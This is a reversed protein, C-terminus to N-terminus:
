KRWLRDWWLLVHLWRVGWWSLPADEREGDRALLEDFIAQQRKPPFAHATTVYFRDVADDDNPDVGYRAAIENWVRMPTPM